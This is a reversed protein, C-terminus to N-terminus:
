VGGAAGSFSSFGSFFFFYIPGTEMQTLERIRPSLMRSNISITDSGM